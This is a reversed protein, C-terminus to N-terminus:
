PAGMREKIALSFIRLFRKTLIFFCHLDVSSEKCGSPTTYVTYGDLEKEKDTNEGERSGERTKLHRSRRGRM